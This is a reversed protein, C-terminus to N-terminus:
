EREVKILVKESERKGKETFKSKYCVIGETKVETTYGNEKYDNQVIGRLYHLADRKLRFENEVSSFLETICKNITRQIICVRKWIIRM